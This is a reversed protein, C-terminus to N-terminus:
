FLKLQKPGEEQSDKKRKKKRPTKEKKKGKGFKPTQNGIENEQEFSTGKTQMIVEATISATKEQYEEKRCAERIDFLREWPKKKGQM